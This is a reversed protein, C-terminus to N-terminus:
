SCVGFSTVTGPQTKQYLISVANTQNEVIVQITQLGTANLWQRCTASDFSTQGLSNQVFFQQLSLYPINGDYPFSYYVYTGAPLAELGAITPPYNVYNENSALMCLQPDPANNAFPALITANKLNAGILGAMEIPATYTPIKSQFIPFGYLMSQAAVIFIIPVFIFYSNIKVNSVEKALEVIKRTVVAIIIMAIPLLPILFRDEKNPSTSLLTLFLIFVLLLFISNKDHKYVLYALGILLLILAYLGFSHSLMSFTFYDLSFSQTIGSLLTSNANNNILLNNTIMAIPSGFAILQWLMFLVTPVLFGAISYYSHKNSFLSAKEEILFYIAVPVLLFLSDIRITLYLGFMLGGLFVRKTSKNWGSLLLYLGITSFFLGPIHALIQESYFFFLWSFGVLFEAALGIDEDFLHRGLLYTAILSLFAFLIIEVHILTLNLSFVAIVPLMLLPFGPLRNNASACLSQGLFKQAVQIFSAGDWWVGTNQNFYLLFIFVGLAIVVALKDRLSLSKIRDPLQFSM